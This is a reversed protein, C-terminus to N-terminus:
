SLASSLRWRLYETVFLTSSLQYFSCFFNWSPTPNSIANVLVPTKPQRSLGKTDVM